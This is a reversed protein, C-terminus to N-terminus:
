EEMEAKAEAVKETLKDEVFQYVREFAADINEGERKNDNITLDIRLSQFNGLNLTYGLTVGVRTDENQM